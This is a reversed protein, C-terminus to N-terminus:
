LKWPKKNNKTNCNSRNSNKKSCNIKNRTGNCNNPSVIKLNETKKM